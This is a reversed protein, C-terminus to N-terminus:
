VTRLLRSMIEGFERPADAATRAMWPDGRYGPHNVRRAFNFQGGGAPWRLARKNKPRITHPRAGWHVFVAHPAMQPSHGVEYVLPDLKRLYTSRRLSGGRTHADAGEEARDFAWQALQRLAQEPTKGIKKLSRRTSELGRVDIELM